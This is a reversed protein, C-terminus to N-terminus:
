DGKVHLPPPCKRINSKLTKKKKLAMLILPFHRRIMVNYKFLHHPPTRNCVSMWVDRSNTDNEVWHWKLGLASELVATFLPSPPPREDAVRWMKSRVFHSPKIKKKSKKKKSGSCDPRWKCTDRRYLHITFDTSKPRTPMNPLSTLHRTFVLASCCPTTAHLGICYSHNSETSLEPRM